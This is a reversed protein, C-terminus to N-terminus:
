RYLLIDRIQSSNIYNTFTTFFTNATLGTLVVVPIMVISTMKVLQKRKGSSTIPNGTSHCSM